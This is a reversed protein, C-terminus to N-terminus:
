EWKIDSISTESNSNVDYFAVFDGTKLLSIQESQPQFIELDTKGIIQWGGPSEFPYIGTQRGAIGVSGKEVKKRPTQKRPMDIRVDVEGMYAFGPLFGIMFVRYIKNTHIKIVEEKTLNANEAVFELDLAFRASYDVPIRIPKQIEFSLSYLSKVSKELFSKVFAFATSHTQYNKRVINLDFFVTLSSYAPVTEIFGSFSKKKIIEALSIVKENLEVSIESGFDITVANECLSFIKYNV